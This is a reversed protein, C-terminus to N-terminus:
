GILALQVVGGARRRSNCGYHALAINEPEDDGGDSIPILHDQSASMPHPWKLRKDVRKRCLHCRWGDRDGIQVLTMKRRRPRVGRRRVNMRRSWELHVVRRCSQCRANAPGVIVAGCDACPHEVRRGASLNVGVVAAQCEPSCTARLLWKGGRRYIAAPFSRGCIVCTLSEPMQLSLGARARRCERCTAQGEPLSGKGVNIQRGCPGACLVTKRPM